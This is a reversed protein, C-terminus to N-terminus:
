ADPEVIAKVDEKSTTHVRKMAQLKSWATEMGTSCEDLTKALRLWTACTECSDHTGRLVDCKGRL